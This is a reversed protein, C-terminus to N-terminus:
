KPDKVKEKAEKWTTVKVLAVNVKGLINLHLQDYLAAKDGTVFIPLGEEDRAKRILQLITKQAATDDDGSREDVWDVDSATLPSVYCVTGCPLTIKSGKSNLAKLLKKAAASSAQINSKSM